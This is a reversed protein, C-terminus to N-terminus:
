GWIVTQGSNNLWGVSSSQAGLWKSDSKSSANKNIDNSDSSLPVFGSCGTLIGVELLLFVNLSGRLFTRRSWGNPIVADHKSM